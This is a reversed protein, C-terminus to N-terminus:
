PWLQSRKLFFVVIFGAPGGGEESRAKQNQKQPQLEKRGAHLEQQGWFQPPNRERPRNGAAGFM